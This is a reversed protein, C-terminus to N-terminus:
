LSAAYPPAPLYEALPLLTVYVLRQACVFPRPFRVQAVDLPLFAGDAMSYEADLQYVSPQPLIIAWTRNRDPANLLQQEFDLQMGYRVNADIQSQAVDRATFVADLPLGARTYAQGVIRVTETQCTFLPAAPSQLYRAPVDVPQSIVIQYLDRVVIEPEPTPPATTGDYLPFPTFVAYFDCGFKYFNVRHLGSRPRGSADFVQLRVRQDLREYAFTYAPDAGPSAYPPMPVLSGSLVLQFRSDAGVVTTEGTFDRDSSARVRFGAGNAVEGYVVYRTCPLTESFTLAAHSLYYDGTFPPALALRAPARLLVQVGVAFATLLLVALVLQKVPFTHRKGKGSPETKPKRAPAPSDSKSESVLEVGLADLSVPEQPELASLAARAAAHDPDRKLAQQLAQRAARPSREAQALLWFTDATPAERCLRRLLVRAPELQGAAILARARALDNQM